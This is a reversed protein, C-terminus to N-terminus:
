QLNDRSTILIEQPANGNKPSVIGRKVLEDMITAAKNYGIGMQRQLYSISPRRDRLIIDIAQEILGEEGNAQRNMGGREFAEINDDPVDSEDALDEATRFVSLDFNQERQKSIFDVVANREDDSAMGCQIRQLGTAGPPQFLMDGYGLLSEAGKGGLITQSDVQSSVKFAIRVPFNAKITGTIVKVDPRQTAIITHIGVARSKAAIKSLATEVEQRATLMIDALEDIIIVLFPLKEPLPEGMDDLQPEAPITRKNFDAINRVGAIRLLGYRREMEAVAWNLVLAVQTVDTIVPVVLHPLPNYVAFEVQKPDVMILRLDDPSFKYLMSMILMNMCVSKGSGTTGAVLLHPAKNLDLIITKGSINKGLLLPIQEKHGTWAKDLMMSHITVLSRIANPIEIGVCNEGPIPAEIRLTEAALAMKLNSELTTIKSLRVGPAPQVKYQTVQPGSVVNTVTADVDFNYFQEQLIKTNREIEQSSAGVLSDHKSDLLDLGPFTYSGDASKQQPATSKTQVPPKPTSVQPKPAAPKEQPIQAATANDPVAFPEFGTAEPEAPKPRNFFDVVAMFLEKWDTKWIILAPIIILAISLIASGTSNMFLTFCGTPSTLRQGIVGGPITKLNLAETFTHFINPWIGFLMAFGLGLLPFSLIYEWSVPALKGRYVLRRWSSVLFALEMPYVAIGFTLLLFWAIKTGMLGLYNTHHAVNAMGGAIYDVEEPTYSLFPLISLLVIVSLFPMVFQGVSAQSVTANDKEEM